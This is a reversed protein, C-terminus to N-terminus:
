KFSNVVSFTTTRSFKSKRVGTQVQLRPLNLLAEDITSMYLKCM